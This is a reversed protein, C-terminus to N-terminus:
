FYQPYTLNPAHLFHCSESNPYPNAPNEAAQSLFEWSKGGDDSSSLTIRYYTYNGKGGMDHNRFAALIRGSPLQLLYTNDIDHANSPGTAISGLVRWTGGADTSSLAKITNNDGKFYTASGLLSGDNAIIAQGYANGGAM